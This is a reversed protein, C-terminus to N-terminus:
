DEVECDDTCAVVWFALGLDHPRDSAAYITFDVPDRYLVDTRLENIANDISEAMTQGDAPLDDPTTEDYFDDAAREMDDILASKAEGWSAAYNPEDAM